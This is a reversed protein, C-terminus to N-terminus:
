QVMVPTPSFITTGNGLNGAGNYGWCQVTSGSFKACASNNGVSVATAGSLGSVPVPWATSTTSGNGLTDGNGNGGWCQVTGGSLLACASFKGVSVATAGTLGSVTVPTRLCGGPDLCNTGGTTGEGVEGNGNAGWCRVTGGSLLACAFYQGVSVATASTLGSVAVPTLSRTATGDGLEGYSNDGWCQVTGESLVACASMYGAAIVTAGTLGSVAVPTSSNTMTANGLQGTANWGWCQVTGGTLLACASYSNVSVAMAGTLGRVAVPISSSTATGDGLQGYTNDGWCQVTGGALLACASETGVSVAIASTISGVAIPAMSCPAPPSACVGGDGTEPCCTDPGTTTGNGLEGYTNDGWCQVTGGSLLACASEAGVSVATVTLEATADGTGLGRSSSGSDSSLGWNTESSADGGSSPSIASRAVGLSNSSCAGALASLSLALTFRSARSARPLAHSGSTM